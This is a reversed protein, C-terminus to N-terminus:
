FHKFVFDYFSRTLIESFKLSTTSDVLDSDLDSDSDDPNSDSDSDKADM